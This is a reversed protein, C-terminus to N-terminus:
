RWEILWVIAIRFKNKSDLLWLSTSSYCILKSHVNFEGQASRGSKKLIDQIFEFEERHILDSGLM